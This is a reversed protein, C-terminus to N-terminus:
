TKIKQKGEETLEKATPLGVIISNIFPVVAPSVMVAVVRVGRIYEAAGVYKLFGKKSLGAVVPNDIPLQITNKGQISFERLITKEHEDLNGLIIENIEKKIKAKARSKEISKLIWDAAKTLLLAGSIVFVVGMIWGYDRMFVQIRLTSLWIDPAILLFGTALSLTLFLKASIKDFDFLRDLIKAIGEM